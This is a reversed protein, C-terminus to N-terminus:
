RDRLREGPDRRGSASREPQLGDPRHLAPEHRHRWLRCRSRRTGPCGSRDRSPERKPYERSLGATPRALTTEAILVLSPETDLRVTYAVSVLTPETTRTVPAISASFSCTGTKLRATSYRSAT